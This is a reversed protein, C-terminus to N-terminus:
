GETDYLVSGELMRGVRRLTRTSSAADCAPSKYIRLIHKLGSPLNRAVPASSRCILTRVLSM